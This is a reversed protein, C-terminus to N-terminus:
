HHHIHSQGLAFFLHRECFEAVFVAGIHVVCRGPNWCNFSKLGTGTSGSSTTMFPENCANDDGGCRSSQLQWHTDDVYCYCALCLCAQHCSIPDPASSSFSMFQPPQWYGSEHWKRVQMWKWGVLAKHNRCYCACLHSSNTMFATPPKNGTRNCM